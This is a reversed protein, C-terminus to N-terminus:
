IRQLLYLNENLISSRNNIDHQPAHLQAMDFDDTHKELAYGNRTKYYEHAITQHAFSDNTDNNSDFYHLLHGYIRTNEIEPAYSVSGVQDGPKQLAKFVEFLKNTTDRTLFFLVGEILIFTPSKNIFPRIVEVMSESSNHNFDLAVYNVKRKPLRGEAMWTETQAKKFSIIETKDIELTEVSEPLAYQYMSFGAGFNIFTGGKEATFFAQLSDHFFRNRLSHLVAEDKFAGGLINTVLADTQPNNWLRAFPDSSIEEHLARYTSIVFATEHVQM